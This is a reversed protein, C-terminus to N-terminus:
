ISKVRKGSFFRANLGKLAAESLNGDRALLASAGPYLIQKEIRRHKNQFVLPRSTIFTIHFLITLYLHKMTKTTSRFKNRSNFGFTHGQIGILNSRNKMHIFSHHFIKLTNNTKLSRNSIIILISIFNKTRITKIEIPLPLFFKFSRLFELSQSSEQM